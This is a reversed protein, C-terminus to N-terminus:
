PPLEIAVSAQQWTQLCSNLGQIGCPLFLILIWLNAESKVRAYAHMCAYLCLCVSACVHILSCMYLFTHKNMCLLFYFYLLINKFSFFFEDKGM